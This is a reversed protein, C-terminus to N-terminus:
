EDSKGEGALAREIREQLPPHSFLWFEIFRPPSPLALNGESLKVFARAAASGNGTLQLGFADAQREMARSVAGAAPLLASVLFWNRIRMAGGTYM